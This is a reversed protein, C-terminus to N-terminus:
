LRIRLIRGSLCIAAGYFALCVAMFVRGFLTTYLPTLLDPSGFRIYLLIGLPMVSMIREEFRKSATATRIQEEVQFAETLREATNRVVLSLQGGSRKVIGFLESFTRVEEICSRQGLDRFLSEITRATRLGAAMRRWERVVDSQEGWLEELEGISREVANEVSYGSKLCDGLLTVANLFEKKFREKRKEAKRRKLPKQFILVAPVSFVAGLLPLDFFVFAVLVSVGLVTGIFM